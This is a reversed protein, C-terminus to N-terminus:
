LATALKEWDAHDTFPTSFTLTIKSFPLPFLYRDWRWFLSLSQHYKVSVGITPVHTKETLYRCGDKIHYPPGNPGDVAMVINKGSKLQQTMVRTSKILDSQLQIPNYGMKKAAIALIKGQLNTSVFMSIHHHKYLFFPTFTNQHWLAFIYNQQDFLVTHSPNICEIHVTKHILM